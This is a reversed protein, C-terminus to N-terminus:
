RVLVSRTQHVQSIYDNCNPCNIGANVLQLKVVIADLTSSYSEAVINPLNLLTDLHFDMNPFPTFHLSLPIKAWKGWILPLDWSM